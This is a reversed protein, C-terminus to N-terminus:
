LSSRVSGPGGFFCYDCLRDRNDSITHIPFPLEDFSEFSVLWHSRRSVSRCPKDTRHIKSWRRVGADGLYSYTKAEDDFAIQPNSVEYRWRVYTDPELPLGVDLRITQNLLETASPGLMRYVRCIVAFRNSNEDLVAPAFSFSLRNLAVDDENLLISNTDLNVVTWRVRLFPDDARAGVPLPVDYRITRHAFNRPLSKLGSVVPAKTELRSTMGLFIGETGIEFQEIAIRTTPGGPRLPGIRRVLPLPGHTNVDTSQIQGTINRITEQIILEVVAPFWGGTLIGFVVEFAVLLSARDVDISIDTPAFTLARWTRARIPVRARSTWVFAGPLTYTMVPILAVSFNAAGGTMSGRGTVRLRGAEPTITLPGLTVGQQAVTARVEAESKRLMAPIIDRNIVFALHNDGAFDHLQDREGQTAVEGNDVNLGLILAGQVVKITADFFKTEGLQGLSRFDLPFGIDGVLTKLWELLQSLFRIDNLYANATPSFPTGSLVDFQWGALEYDASKATILVVKAAVIVEPKVRLDAQWQIDRVETVLPVVGTFISITGSGRLRLIGNQDDTDSFIVQPPQAFLNVSGRPFTAEQLSRSLSHSLTGAHYFNLLTDNLVRDRLTVAAAFGAHDPM